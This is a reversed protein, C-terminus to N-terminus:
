RFDWRPHVECRKESRLVAYGHRLGFVRGSKATRLINKDSFQEYFAGHYSADPSTRLFVEKKAVILVQPKAFQLPPTSTNGNSSAKGPNSTVLTIFRQYEDASLESQLDTLLSDRYLDSIRREWRM